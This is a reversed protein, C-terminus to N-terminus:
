VPVPVTRQNTISMMTRRHQPFPAQDQLSRRNFYSRRALHLPRLIPPGQQLLAPLAPLLPLRPCSRSERFSRRSELCRPRNEIREYYTKFPRAPRLQIECQSQPLWSQNRDARRMCSAEPLNRRTGYPHGNRQWDPPSSNHREHDSRSNSTRWHIKM